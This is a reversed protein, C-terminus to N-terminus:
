SKCFMAKTPSSRTSSRGCYSPCLLETMPTVLLWPLTSWNGRTMSSWISHSDSSGTWQHRGRETLLDFVKHQNIPHNHCLVPRTWSALGVAWLLLAPLCVVAYCQLCWSIFRPYSVLHPFAKHWYRCPTQHLLGQVHPLGTSSFCDCDNHNGEPLTTPEAEPNAARETFTATAVPTWLM